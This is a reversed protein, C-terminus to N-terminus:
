DNLPLTMSGEVNIEYPPVNVYKRHRRGSFDVNLINGSLELKLHDIHQVAASLKLDTVASIWAIEIFKIPNAGFATHLDIFSSREIKVLSNLGQVLSEFMAENARGAVDNTDSKFTMPNENLLLRRVRKEAFEDASTGSTGVEMDNSFDTRIPDFQVKWLAKGGSVVRNLSRLKAVAVDFGYAVVLVDKHGRFRSFISDIESTDAAVALEIEESWTSEQIVPFTRISLGESLLFARPSFNCSAKTPPKPSAETVSGVVSSLNVGTASERSFDPKKGLPPPQIPEGHLVRLLKEYEHESYPEGTLDVGMRSKLYTPPSSRWAGNRLVPIFKNTLMHEALEATIVMSEYGVGGLRKNAREAYTPTCVVIVFDSDMVGQEMFHLRDAGPNLHWQDFIVEVGSEGRLRKALDKVWQQHEPGDWSYSLLARPVRTASKSVSTPNPVPPVPLEDQDLYEEGEETVKYFGQGDLDVLYGQNVLKTWPAGMLHERVPGKEPDPYGSALAYPDGPLMLNHKSLANLNHQGIKALQALLLRCKQEIPLKRLEGLTPAVEFMANPTSKM